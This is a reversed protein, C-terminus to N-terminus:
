HSYIASSYSIHNESGIGADQLRSSTICDLHDHNSIDTWRLRNVNHDSFFVCTITLIQLKTLLSSPTFSSLSSKNKPPTQNSKPYVLRGLKDM